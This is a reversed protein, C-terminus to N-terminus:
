RNLQLLYFLFANWTIKLLHFRLFTSLPAINAMQQPDTVETDVENNRVVYYYLAGEHDGEIKIKYVGCSFRDMPYLKFSDEKKDKLALYVKSALPAFLAFSTEKKSYTAGLDDGGYYYKKEFDIFSTAESVDLPVRGYQPSTVFYSHGLELEKELAFDVMCLSPLSSIKGNGLKIFSTDDIELIPSFKEWPLSSFIVVRILKPEILKASVYTNKM